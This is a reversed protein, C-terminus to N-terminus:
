WQKLTNYVSYLPEITEFIRSMNYYYKATRAICFLDM